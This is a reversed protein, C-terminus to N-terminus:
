EDVCGPELDFMHDSGDVVRREVDRCAQQTWKVRQRSGDGGNTGREDCHGEVLLETEPHALLVKANRTLVKKFEEKINFKDFDFFVDELVIPEEEEVEIPEEEPPAPEGHRRLWAHYDRIAEPLQRLAEDRSPARVICGPLDLVHAMCRGDDAIELHVPYRTM